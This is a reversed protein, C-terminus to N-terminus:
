LEKSMIIYIRKLIMLLTLFFMIITTLALTNFIQELWIYKLDCFLLSIISFVSLVISYSINIHIEKTLQVKVTDGEANAKLKDMFGFIIALLNFLFGALISISAILINVYDQSYKFHDHYVFYIGIILPGFFFLIIERKRIKGSATSRLTGIHDRVIRTINIKGIM